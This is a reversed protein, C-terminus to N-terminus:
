GEVFDEAHLPKLRAITNHLSDLHRRMAEVAGKANGADLQLVVARHEEIVKDMHGKVPNALHRVRDLHTKVSLVTDWIGDLGASVSFNRHFLEDATHFSWLDGSKAHRQQLKIAKKAEDSAKETWRKAAESLVALELAVRAFHGERVKQLIIPSVFSGRQPFIGILKDEALRTLAIRVPSRSVKFMGCVRNESIAENPRLNGSIIAERLGQYIQDAAPLKRDVHRSFDIEVPKDPIPEIKANAKIPM